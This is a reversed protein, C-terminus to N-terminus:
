DIHGEFIFLYLFQPMQVSHFMTIGGDPFVFDQWKSYNHHFQLTGDDDKVLCLSVSMENRWKSAPFTLTFINSCSQVSQLTMSPLHTLLPLM